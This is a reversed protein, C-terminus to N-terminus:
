LSEEDFDLAKLKVSRGLAPLNVPKRIGAGEDTALSAGDGFKRLNLLQKWVDGGTADLGTVASLIADFSFEVIDDAVQFPRAKAIQHKLRWLEALNVAVDYTSPASVKDEHM